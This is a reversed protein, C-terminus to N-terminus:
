KIDILAKYKILNAVPTESDMDTQFMLELQHFLYNNVINDDYKLLWKCHNVNDEVSFGFSSIMIYKNFSVCILIQIELNPM